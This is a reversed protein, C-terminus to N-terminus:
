VVPRGHDFLALYEEGNEPYLDGLGMAEAIGKEIYFDSKSDFLPDLVKQNELIYGNANKVGGVSDACEFKSCVPLVLDVYDVVSSHYIDAVCVFDLSDLWRQTKAWNAAKQTPIDGFFMAAHVDDTNM